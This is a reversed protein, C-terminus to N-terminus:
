PVAGTCTGAITRGCVATSEGMVALRHCIRQKLSGTTANGAYALSLNAKQLANNLFTGTPTTTATYRCYVPEGTQAILTISMMGEDLPTTSPDDFLVSFQDIRYEPNSPKTEPAALTIKEQTSASALTLVVFGAVVLATMVAGLTAESNEYTM